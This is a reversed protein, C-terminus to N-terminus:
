NNKIGRRENRQKRLEEMSLNYKINRETIITGTSSNKTIKTTWNGTPDYTYVNTTTDVSKSPINKQIKKVVNGNDDYEFLWENRVKGPADESVQRILQKKSNYTYTEKSYYAGENLESQVTKDKNLVVTQTEKSNTGWETVAIYHLNDKFQYKTKEQQILEGKSNYRTDSILFDNADYEKVVRIELENKSNYGTQEILVGPKSYNFKYVGYLSGDAKYGTNVVLNGEEDFNDVYSSKEGAKVPENNKFIVEYNTELISEIKGKLNKEQVSTQHEKKQAMVISTSLVSVTLILIIQKM